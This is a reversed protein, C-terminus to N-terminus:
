PLTKYPDVQKNIDYVWKFSGVLLDRLSEVPIGMERLDSMTETFPATSAFADVVRKTEHGLWMDAAGKLDGNAELKCKYAKKIDEMPIMQIAEQVLAYVGDGPARRVRKSRMNPMGLASNFMNTISYVDFNYDEAREVWMKFEPLHEFDRLNQKFKEGLVYKVLEKMQNDSIAYEMGLSMVREFPVMELLDHLDGELSNVETKQGECLLAGAITFLCYFLNMAIFCENRYNRSSWERRVSKVGRCLIALLGMM